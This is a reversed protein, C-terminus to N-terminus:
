RCLSAAPGRPRHCRCKAMPWTPVSIARHSHHHCLGQDRLILPAIIGMMGGSRRRSESESESESECRQRRANAAAHASLGAAVGSLLAFARLALLLLSLAEPEGCGLSPLPSGLVSAVWSVCGLDGSSRALSRSFISRTASSRSRRSLSAPPPASG